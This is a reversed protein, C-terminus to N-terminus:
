WRHPIADMALSRYSRRVFLDIGGDFPRLVVNGTWRGDGDRVMGAQVDDENLEAVAAAEGDRYFVQLANGM